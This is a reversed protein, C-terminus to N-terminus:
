FVLEQQGLAVQIREVEVPTPPQGQEMAEPTQNRLAYPLWPAIYHINSWAAWYENSLSNGHLIRTPIGWLTTNIFAMDCATRNIDIATVRL